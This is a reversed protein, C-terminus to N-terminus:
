PTMPPATLGGGAGPKAASTCPPPGGGATLLRPSALGRRSPAAILLHLALQQRPAASDGCRVAPQAGTCACTPSPPGPPFPTCPPPPTGRPPRALPVRAHPSATVDRQRDTADGAGPTVDWRGLAAPAAADGDGQPGATAKVRQPSMSRGLTDGTEDRCSARPLPARPGGWHRGREWCPSRAAPLREIDRPDKHCRARHCSVRAM